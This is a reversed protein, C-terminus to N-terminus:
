SGPSRGSQGEVALLWYKVSPQIGLLLWLMSCCINIYKFILLGLGNYEFRQYYQNANKSSETASTSWNRAM